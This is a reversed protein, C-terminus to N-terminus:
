ICIFVCIGGIYMHVYRSEHFDHGFLKLISVCLKGSVFLISSRLDWPRRSGCEKGKNIGANRGSHKQVWGHDGPVNEVM